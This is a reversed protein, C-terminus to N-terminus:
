NDDFLKSITEYRIEIGCHDSKLITNIVRLGTKSNMEIGCHDSKLAVM